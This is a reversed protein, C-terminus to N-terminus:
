ADHPQMLEGSTGYGFSRVLLYGGFTMSAFFLDGAVTYRFFPVAMTYCELLGSWTKAYHDFLIWCGFNTVLFFALSSALSAILLYISASWTDCAARGQRFFANRLVPGFFAPLALMVYVLTMLRLDYGGLFWDSAAMIAVPVASAALPALRTRTTPAQEAHKGRTGAFYFGAFLAIAAVPKFNPIHRFEVRAVVGALVLAGFVLCDLLAARNM